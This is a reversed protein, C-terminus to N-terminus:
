DCSISHHAVNQGWTKLKVRAYGKIHMCRVFTVLVLAFRLVGEGGGKLLKESKCGNLPKYKLHERWTDNVLPSEHKM